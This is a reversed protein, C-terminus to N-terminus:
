FIKLIKRLCRNQFVELRHNITKTMEWSESGYLFISLVNNKFLRRKTKQFIKGFKWINRLTAVAQSVKSLRASIEKESNGDATMKSGLYTFEEEEEINEGQLNIPENTRSNMRMHKTKTMNAKLGINHATTSLEETKSQM